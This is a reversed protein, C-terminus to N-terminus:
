RPLGQLVQYFSVRVADPDDPVPAGLGQRRLIGPSGQLGSVPGPGVQQLHVDLEAAIPPCDEKVIEGQLGLQAIRAPHAVQGPLCQLGQVHAAPEAGPEGPLANREQGLHQVPRPLPHPQPQVELMAKHGGVVVTQLPRGQLKDLRRTHGLPDHDRAPVLHGQSADLGPPGVDRQCHIEARAHGVGHLLHPPGPGIPDDDVPGLSVALRYGAQPGGPQRHDQRAEKAAM